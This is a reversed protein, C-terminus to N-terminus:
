DGKEDVAPVSIVFTSGHGLVSQVTVDGGLARATNRAISLGLGTGGIKRTRASDLRYFREFIQDHRSSDIGPGEDSVAIQALMENVSNKVRLTVTVTGGVPSHQVANQVLNGLAAEFAKQNGRIRATSNEPVSKTLQVGDGSAVVKNDKVVRSVAKVPDILSDHAKAGGQQAEALLVLDKTLAALRNTEQTLVGAFKITKKDSASKSIAEALLSIAAVPTNLEHSANAIFDQRAYKDQYRRTENLILAVVLPGPIPMVFVSQPSDATAPHSSGGGEVLAQMVRRQFWEQRLVRRVMQEEKAYASNHFVQRMSQGLVVAPMPMTELLAQVTADLPVNQPPSVDEKGPRRQVLLAVIAGLALGAAFTLAMMWDGTMCGMTHASLLVLHELQPTAYGKNM